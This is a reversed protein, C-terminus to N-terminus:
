SFSAYRASSDPSARTEVPEVARVNLGATTSMEAVVRERYTDKGVHALLSPLLEPTPAAFRCPQWKVSM